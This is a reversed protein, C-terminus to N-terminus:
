AANRYENILGDCRSTRLVDVIAPPAEPPGHAPTPPRQGLSQHPRHKNYHEIYDGVLRELQRRNWVITRDLLERRISGIWREAFSNAVQPHRSSM